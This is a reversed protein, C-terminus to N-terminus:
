DIILTNGKYRINIRDFTNLQEVVERLELSCDLKYYLHLSAVEKNNFKVEVSYLDAVVRMISDLPENEFMRVSFVSDKQLEIVDNAMAATSGPENVAERSEVPENDGRATLTVTATVGIALAVLSSGVILAISAARNGPRFFSRRRSTVKASFEQWEAELDAERLGEIASDTKVLLNYIERTESDSLIEALQESGYRDPHEVIDLVLEYKDM